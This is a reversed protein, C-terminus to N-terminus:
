TPKTPKTPTSVFMVFFIQLRRDGETWALLFDGVKGLWPFLVFMIFVIFKMM